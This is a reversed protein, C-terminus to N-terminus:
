PLSRPWVTLGTAQAANWLQRDYTAVTVSEGLMDRWFLASALHTADYGRLSYDWALSAARSVLVETMQLRILSEWEGSFFQLASVGEERTLLAMRVAKAMAAAVEARSIIATGVVAAQDILEGVEASDAEAVYRKVLASADLYAIM